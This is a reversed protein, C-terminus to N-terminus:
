AQSVCRMAWSSKSFRTSAASMSSKGTAAAAIPSASRKSAAEGVRELLPITLYIKLEQALACFYETSPGPVNEAAEAPDTGRFAAELPRGQVHWNTRLDQSIYGTIATEPLVIIKAGGAAAERVLATLRQRNQEVAGLDSPCQIAAVKVTQVPENVVVAKIQNTTERCGGIIV